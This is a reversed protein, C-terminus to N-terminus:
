GGLSRLSVAIGPTFGDEVGGRRLAMLCLRLAEGAAARGFADAAKVPRNHPPVVPPLIAPFLFQRVIEVIRGPHLTAVDNLSVSQLSGKRSVPQRAVNSRTLPRKSLRDLDAPLEIGIADPRGIWILQVTTRDALSSDGVKLTIDFKIQLVEFAWRSGDPVSHVLTPLCPEIFGAPRTTPPSRSLMARPMAGRPGGPSDASGVVDATSAGYTAGPDSVWNWRM